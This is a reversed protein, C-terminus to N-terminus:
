AVAGEPLTGALGAAAFVEDVHHLGPGEGLSASRGLVQQLARNLPADIGHLRAQLVVEGNLFDVESGSGRAFSQWISQQGPAYGGGPAVAADKADYSVESAPDAFAYGALELVERTEAVIGQRLADLRDEPGDLVSVAFTVNVLAKWALWRTVDPVAETLWNARRLDAAVEAAVQTARPALRDNPYAGLVVQGTRPSNAVEVEGPVVHKAAVLTTAGVVVDFYRLAIREAELGNLLIVLPLRAGVSDSGVPAWAWEALTEAADQSKTALVLVDSRTLTLSRPGDVVDVALTRERSGQRYRLGHAEIAALAKGRSVLVVPIGAEELGAAVAAGVGGAGIVVYRRSV